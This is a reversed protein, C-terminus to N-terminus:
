LARLHDLFDELDCYSYERHECGDYIISECETIKINVRESRLWQELDPQWIYGIVRVIDPDSKAILSIIFIDVRYGLRGITDIAEDKNFSIGNINNMRIINKYAMSFLNQSQM